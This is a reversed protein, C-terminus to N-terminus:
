QTGQVAFRASCAERLRPAILPFTDLVHAFAARDLGYLHAAAANLRAYADPAGAVGTSELRATCRVIERWAPDGPAPRPVPLRAMLEATVHSSVWRRVLYNAVLSNLLGMLGHQEDPALVSKACFVTHTSLCGAPLVAAILTVANTASTVDRYALRPRHLGALRSAAGSLARRPLVRRVDTLRVRFPELHKGEVIPIAGDAAAGAEVFRRGDDTANLERGFRVQWGDAAALAPVRRGIEILLRLDIPDPLDPITHGAPDWRAISAREIRVRAWGPPDDRPEDPLADLAGPDTLGFRCRLATTAGGQRGALLVFRTARHIPFLGERNEFGVLPDLTTTDLLARRLGSSRRDTLLGGPVIVGFRGGPRLLQLGRELFLQYRNLHGRGGASAYVGAGRVFATTQAVAQRAEDRCPGADARLMDWPPNGLIADFGGDPRPHGHEDFFAEPFALEWHFFARARAIAAARALWADAEAGPLASARGLLRASLDGALAPTLPPGSWFWAACWLDAARKWRDLPTGPAELGALRREKDRVAALTDAPDRTLRFREPLVTDALVAATDRDFLPRDDGARGAARGAFPPQRALDRFRAGLLSDGAALHHDLFTLPRDAALTTLWLSLRAVQVAMPNVDVGFLCREAVRRRLAARTRRTSAPDPAAEAALARECARALYHCASVLFAGSGMAPDLVRLALIEECSRGRVLPALTRRVLFDTLARPTYFTGTAKRAVVTRALALGAADPVAEYELVREYVSGLQEVGLDGFAIPRRAGEERRTALALLVRGAAADSVVAREALPAREPAFLRGNFATVRLDGARCGAHALRAIAQLTAWVGRGARTSVRRCLAHVTYAERYVPHWTPVLTRAEAFLLFLLRYIVTISQDLVAAPPAGARRAPEHLAAVLTTLAEAVGAGLSRCVVAAHRDADQVLAAISGAGEGALTEAGFLAWLAHAGREDGLARELDVSLHRRSWSRAVDILTLAAGNAVLTWAAGHRAGETLAARRAAEPPVAWPLAILAAVIRGRRRLVGALGIPELPRVEDVAYGLAALTPEIAVDLVARTASAPGLRRRALRHVRTLERLGRRAADAPMEAVLRPWREELYASSILSGSIGWPM